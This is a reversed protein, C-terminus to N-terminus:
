ASKKWAEPIPCKLMEEAKRIVEDHGDLVCSLTLCLDVFSYTVKNLNRLARITIYSIM